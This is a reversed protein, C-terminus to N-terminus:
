RFLIGAAIRLNGESVGNRIPQSRWLPNCGGSCLISVNISSGRRTVSEVLADRGCKFCFSFLPALSSWYVIFLQTEDTESDVTLEEEDDCEEAEDEDGSPEFTHDAPDDHMSESMNSDMSEDPDYEDNYPMENFQLQNRAICPTNSIIEDNQASSSTDQNLADVLSHAKLISPDDFNTQLGVSTSPPRLDVQISCSTVPTREHEDIHETQTSKSLQEIRELDSM